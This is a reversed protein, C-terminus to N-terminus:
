RSEGQAGRHAGTEKARQAGLAARAKHAWPQGCRARGSIAGVGVWCFRVLRNRLGVYGWAQKRRSQDAVTRGLCPSMRGEGCPAGAATHSESEPDGANGLCQASCSPFVVSTLESVLSEFVRSARGRCKPGDIIARRHAPAVQLCFRNASRRDVVAWLKWPYAAWPVVLKRWVSAFALLWASHFSSLLEAPWTGMPGANALIAVACGPGGGGRFLTHGLADLARRAPNSEVTCFEAVGGAAAGGHSHFTADQFLKFHVAM